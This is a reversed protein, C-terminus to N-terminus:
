GRAVGRDFEDAAKELCFFCVFRGDLTKLTANPCAGCRGPDGYLFLDVGTDAFVQDIRATIPALERRITMRFTVAVSAPRLAGALMLDRALVESPNLPEHEKFRAAGWRVFSAIKGQTDAERIIVPGAREIM